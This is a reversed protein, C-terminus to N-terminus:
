CASNLAILTGERNDKGEEIYIYCNNVPIKWVVPFKQIVLVNQKFLCVLNRLTNNWQEIWEKLKEKNSSFCSPENIM